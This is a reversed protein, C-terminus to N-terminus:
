NAAEDEKKMWFPATLFWIMTGIFILTIYLNWSITKSFVLFAPLVTLLLGIFSIIILIIKM